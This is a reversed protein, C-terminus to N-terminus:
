KNPARLTTNINTQLLNILYWPLQLHKQQLLDIIYGSLQLIHANTNDNTRTYTHAHTHTPTNTHAHTYTHMLFTDHQDEVASNM